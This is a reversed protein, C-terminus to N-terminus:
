LSALLEMTRKEKEAIAKLVDAAQHIYRVDNTESVKEFLRSVSTWLGAIEIFSEYGTKLNDLQLLEYSQQLFDRYLNRFLAGGTGAKEMLMASMKFEQEINKGTNFWKLIEFSTKLIGKYAVNMIPPNLYAEANNKIVKPIVKEFDYGKNKKISYYLNKSAMPGKAARALALSELSTKVQGGQQRTDILFANENDYGYIAAYHGAFHFPNSFYNLYYCDLKLGVAQGNDLYQKVEDWAKKQSSTEKVKLELGLNKCINQTLLDPKIRGGIFPFDMTKMNWYIYSLGEGIGFLMPETLEIGIQKLLTGTATTECHQGDFPKLNEIKM